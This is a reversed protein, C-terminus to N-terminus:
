FMKIFFSIIIKIMFRTITTIILGLINVLKTSQTGDVARCKMEIGTLGYNGKNKEGKRLTNEFDVDKPIKLRFTYTFNTGDCMEWDSWIGNFFM